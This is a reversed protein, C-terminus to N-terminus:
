SAKRQNTNKVWITRPFATKKNDEPEGFEMKYHSERGSTPGFCATGRWSFANEANLYKHNHSENDSTVRIRHAGRPKM